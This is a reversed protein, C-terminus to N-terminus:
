YGRTIEVVHRPGENESRGAEDPPSGMSFTGPPIWRMRQVVGGVTFSAFRGCVDEGQGPKAVYRAAVRTPRELAATTQRLAACFSPVDPFRKDREWDLARKLAEKVGEACSLADVFADTHRLAAQPLAKGHIAFVLTMALGFVDARVDADQPRD